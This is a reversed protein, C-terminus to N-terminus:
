LKILEDESRRYFVLVRGIKQVIESNTVSALDLALENLEINCTELVKVKVLEHADLALDLSEVLNSSVGDKGIIVDAKVNVALSRLYRKQKGTLIM